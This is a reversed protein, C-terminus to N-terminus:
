SKAQKRALPFTLFSPSPSDLDPLGPFVSTQRRDDTNQHLLSMKLLNDGGGRGQRGGRQGECESAWVKGEQSGIDNGLLLSHGKSPHVGANKSLLVKRRNKCFCCTCTEGAGEERKFSSFLSVPTPSPLLLFQCFVRFSFSNSLNTWNQFGTKRNGLDTLFAFVRGGRHNFDRLGRRCLPFICMTERWIILPLNMCASGLCM